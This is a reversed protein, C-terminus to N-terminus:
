NFLGGREDIEEFFRGEGFFYLFGGEPEDSFYIAAKGDESLDPLNDVLQQPPRINSGKNLVKSRGIYTFEDLRESAVVGIKNQNDFHWEVCDGDLSHEFVIHDKLYPPVQLRNLSGIESTRIVPM